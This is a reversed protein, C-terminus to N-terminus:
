KVPPLNRCPALNTLHLGSFSTPAHRIAWTWIHPVETSGPLFVTPLPEIKLPPPEM